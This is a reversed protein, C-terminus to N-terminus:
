LEEMLKQLNNIYEKLEKKYEEREDDKLTKARKEM